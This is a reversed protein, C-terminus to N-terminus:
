TVARPCRTRRRGQLWSGSLQQDSTWDAGMEQLVAELRPGHHDSAALEHRGGRYTMRAVPFGRVDRVTPDLDVSNTPYAPGRGAHSPGWGGRSQTLERMLRRTAQWGVALDQGRMIPLHWRRRAGGHRRAAM